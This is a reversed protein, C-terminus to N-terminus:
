PLWRRYWDQFVILSWLLHSHNATGALHEQKFQAVVGANFIGQQAILDVQLYEELLPRFQNKLWHKMPMSFGEKPRYICERPAYRAAISKLLIKTQGQHVKFREPIQFALTVLDPDLFPVRAELSVAMSMRDLKVLINDSLYSKVDVYLGRNLPQRDGAKAFLNVIHAAAPATVAAQATPTLLVERIAEGAFLRWRAHSLMQPHELGELFRQAKNILGKKQPQPPLARVWKGLWQQVWKPSQIYQQAKNQALYSEYGGFLEDGGDGSLAVTVQERALASVLYTPFISFDGIPDDMFTMLRDFHEMVDMELIQTHHATGLHQAVQHSWRLENYSPDQFGISFTQAAGMAATVLTSDVGGSLFAGLPVDSVLQQRVSHQLQQDVWDQWDTATLDEREPSEPIDWYMQHQVTSQSLDVALLHGPELQRVAQFLTAAGPVYEWALFDALATMDLSREICGSAIVAKIESGWVLYQPTLAYYLPKIGLHDRVLVLKQQATDHLAIAFMGNLYRPFDLGYEEYAHVIVESDVSAKFIHGQAQLQSRLERFNYIEGNFVCLIAGTENRVPQQGGELDLIALRRMALGVGAQLAIGEEDPGRHYLTDCMRQLQVPDPAAANHLAAIGAIGCM